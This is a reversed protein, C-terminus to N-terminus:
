TKDNILAIEVSAGRCDAGMPPNEKTIRVTITETEPWRSFVAKAIRSAVHEILNSPISMEHSVLSFLAAYNLTDAVNDSEMAKELPYAVRLSVVFDGGVRREQPMVGHFARFRLGDLTIYSSM